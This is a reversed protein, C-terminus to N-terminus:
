LQRGAGAAAYRALLVHLLGTVIGGAAGFLHAETVVNAGTLAVSFPAAGFMIEGILKAALAAALAAGYVRDHGFILGAAGAAWFGHLVGSAGAYWALGPVFVLLGLDIALASGAATAAWWLGSAALPRLAFAIVALGAVNLALHSAGLHVLHGTVLRWYEGDLLRARDLRLAATAGAGFLAPVGILITIFAPGLLWQFGKHVVPQPGVSQSHKV